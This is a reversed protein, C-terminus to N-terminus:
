NKNLISIKKTDVCKGDIKLRFIYIGPVISGKKGYALKHNGFANFRKPNTKIVKRGSMNYLECEVFSPKKLYFSVTNKELHFNLIIPSNRNLVKVNKLELTHIQDDTEPLIVYSVPGNNKIRVDKGNFLAQKFSGEFVISNGRKVKGQFSFTINGNERSINLEKLDYIANANDSYEDPFVYGLNPYQKEFNNLINHIRLYSRETGKEFVAEPHGGIQALHGSALCKKFTKLSHNENKDAWWCTSVAWLRKGNRHLPISYFFDKIGIDFFVFGSDIVLDVLSKTYKFGPSRWYRLSKKTL